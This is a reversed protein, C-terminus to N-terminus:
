FLDSLLPTIEENIRRDIEDLASLAQDSLAFFGNKNRRPKYFLQLLRNRIRVRYQYM